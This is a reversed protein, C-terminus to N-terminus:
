KLIGARELTGLNPGVKFKTWLALKPNQHGGRERNTETDLFSRMSGSKYLSAVMRSSLIAEGEDGEQVEVLPGNSGIKFAWGHCDQAGTMLRALRFRLVFRELLQDASETLGRLQRRRVIFVTGLLHNYSNLCTLGLVDIREYM